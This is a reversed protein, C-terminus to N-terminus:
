LSSSSSSSSNREQDVIDLAEAAFSKYCPRRTRMIDHM